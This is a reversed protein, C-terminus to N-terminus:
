CRQSNNNSLCGTRGKLFTGVGHVAVRHAVGAQFEPFAHLNVVTVVGGVGWVGSVITHSCSGAVTSETSDIAADKRGLFSGFKDSLLLDLAFRVVLAQNIASGVSIAFWGSSARSDFIARDLFVLSIRNCGANSFRGALITLTSDFATVEGFRFGAARM